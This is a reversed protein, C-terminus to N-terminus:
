AAQPVDARITYTIVWQYNEDAGPPRVGYDNTYQMLLIDGTDSVPTQPVATPHGGYRQLVEEALEAAVTKADKGAVGKTYINFMWPHDHIEYRKAVGTRGSMRTVVTNPDARFVCYPLPTAAGAEGDHLSPFEDRQSETWNRKFVWDLGYTDWVGVIAKHIAAVTVAM